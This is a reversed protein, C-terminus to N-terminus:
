ENKKILQLLKGQIDRTKLHAINKNVIVILEGTIKQERLAEAIRRKIKNRDVAKPAVKKSVTIAAKFANSGPKFLVTFQDSTLRKGKFNKISVISLNLRNKAALM